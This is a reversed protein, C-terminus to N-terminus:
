EFHIHIIAYEGNDVIGNLNFDNLVVLYLDTFAIKKMPSEKKDNLSFRNITWSLRLTDGNKGELAARRDGEKEDYTIYHQQGLDKDIYLCEYEKDMDCALGTGPAFYPISDIVVGAHLLAAGRADAFADMHTVYFKKDTYAFSNFVIKFGAKKLTIDQKNGTIKYEHGDQIISVMLVNKQGYSIQAITNMLIFGLVYIHKQKM